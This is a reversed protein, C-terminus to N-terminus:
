FSIEKIDAIKLFAKYIQGIIAIRNAKIKENKDNIMVADFYEDIVNKLGFLSALYAKPELENLSLNKFADNLAKEAPQSILAEDVSSIESDKIINSLRKFTDFNAKFNEGKSIEDLALINLNLKNLDRQGSNICAKVISSNADYLTYIREMIFNELEALNFEKYNKSLDKLLEHLNINLKSNLIIKIVGLAARRLAYPDKTGTPIKNISFLGMLADLKNSIAVIASFKSSPLASDEGDPLYQEKIAISVEKSFGKKSAYYSGIIGQLDTFEYVMQTVLDAKSLMVANELEKLYDEGIEKQLDASHIEALKTAIKLERLEKDYVSGLGTLYSIKELKKPGFDTALDSEWFFKADSLRARLVKQNGLVILKQDKACSNSIVVFHNSLEGNEKRVAFYRQNEKMSTIIVESPIELFDEDFTGLLAKPNETITIVEALLEEDLEIKLGSKAEIEKFENLITEKRKLSSLVVGNKALLEFYEDENSFSIKDYSFDRHPFFAKQTKVGFIEFDLNVDDLTCILSRLPRIFDFKGMGWRMSRGFNLSKIFNLAAVPLIEEAKKGKLLKKYYLIEKGDIEKFELENESIDCKKAFSLAAKSYSGDENFAIKKPAGKFELEQDNAFKPIEGWILMRRPTYDFDFNGSINFEKLAKNWKNLINNKEKLFPIAPLEEVGFELLLRM